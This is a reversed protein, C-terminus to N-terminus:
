FNGQKSFKGIPARKSRLELIRVLDNSIAREVVQRIEELIINVLLLRSSVRMLSGKYHFCSLDVKCAPYRITWVSVGLFRKGIIEM